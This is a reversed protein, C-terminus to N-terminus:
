PLIGAFIQYLSKTQPQLDFVMDLYRLSADVTEITAAEAEFFLRKQPDGQVEYICYVVQEWTGPLNGIFVSFKKTLRMPKGHVLTMAREMSEMDDADVKANEEIRDIITGKDTVKVTLERSNERLRIFDVMPSNWYLDYSITTGLNINYTSCMFRYVEEYSSGKLVFKREVERSYM